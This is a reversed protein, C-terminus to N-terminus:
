VHQQLYEILHPAIQQVDGVIGYDATKFIPANKNQNVAVIIESEQIGLIHQSAGSIGCALYLKPRITVGSQGILQGEPIIGEDVAATSGGLMANLVEALKHALAPDKVGRGVGVVREAEELKAGKERQLKEVSVIEVDPPSIQPNVKIVEGKKTKDRPLSKAIGKHVVALQPKTNSGMTAMFDFFPSIQGLQRTSREVKLDVCHATLGINLACAIRPALDKGIDTRGFLLIEPKYRLTLEKMASCYSATQYRSLLPSEVLYVKDAGYCILEQALPEVIDGLLVTALEVGLEDALRRGIALLELSIKHLEGERQEAFIWVGRYEQSM